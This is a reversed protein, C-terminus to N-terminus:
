RNALITSGSAKHGPASAALRNWKEAAGEVIRRAVRIEIRNADATRSVLYMGHEHRFDDIKVPILDSQRSDDGVALSPVIGVGLGLSVFKKIAELNTAEISADFRLHESRLKEAIGLHWLPEESNVVFSENGLDALRVSQRLAFEHGRPVILVTEDSTLHSADLDADEPHLSMLALDVTRERVSRLLRESSQYFVELKANPYQARLGLMLAPVIRLAAVEDSGIRIRSAEVANMEALTNTVEDRMRLMKKACEYLLHGADTLTSNGRSSREFLPAGLEQQLKKLAMSVAPQTRFVRDAARRFNGEEVTAVFMELQMLDM